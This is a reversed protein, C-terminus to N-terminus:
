SELLKWGHQNALQEGRRVALSIAPQTVRLRQALAEQTMGLEETAWYSLLCHAQVTKREKGKRFMEEANM